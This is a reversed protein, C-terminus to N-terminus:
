TILLCIYIYSMDFCDVDLTVPDVSSVTSSADLVTAIFTHEGDQFTSITLTLTGSKIQTTADPYTLEFDGSAIGGQVDLIIEQTFCDLTSILQGTPM